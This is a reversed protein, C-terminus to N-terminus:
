LLVKNYGQQRFQTKQCNTINNQIKTFINCFHTNASSSAITPKYLYNLGFDSTQCATFVIQLVFATTAIVREFALTWLIRIHFWLHSLIVTRDLGTLLLWRLYQNKHSAHPYFYLNIGVQSFRM